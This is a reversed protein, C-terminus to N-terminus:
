TLKCRTHQLRTEFRRQIVHAVRRSAAIEFPGDDHQTNRTLVHATNPLVASFALRSPRGVSHSTTQRKGFHFHSVILGHECVCVALHTRQIQIIAGQSM